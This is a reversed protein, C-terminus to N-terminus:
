LVGKDRDPSLSATIGAAPLHSRPNPDYRNPPKYIMQPTRALECRERRISGVHHHRRFVLHQEAGFKAIKGARDATQRGLKPGDDL